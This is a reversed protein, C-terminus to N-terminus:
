RSLTPSGAQSVCPFSFDNLHFHEPRWTSSWLLEATARFHRPPAPPPTEHTHGVLSKKTKAYLLHQFPRQQRKIGRTNDVGTLSVRASQTKAGDGLEECVSLLKSAACEEILPIVWGAGTMSGTSLPGPQVAAYKQSSSNNRRLSKEREREVAGRQQPQQQVSAVLKFVCQEM